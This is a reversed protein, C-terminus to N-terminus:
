GPPSGAPRPPGGGGAGPRTQGRHCTSCNVVPNPSKINPIKKLEANIGNVMAFMDRAIQKTPKDEKEYEGTVHCHSCSVGLAPSFGRAMINLVRIAPQGKFLKINKYVSEAPQNDRGALWAVEENFLRTRDKEISDRRAAMAAAMRASDAATMPPRGPGGAPQGGQAQSPTVVPAPASTDVSAQQTCSGALVALALVGVSSEVRM